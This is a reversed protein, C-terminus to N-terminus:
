RLRQAVEQLVLDGNHHGLTNNVESFRDLNMMLLAVAPSDQRMATYLREQMLTRNPLGTLPDRYTLQRLAEQAEKRETIDVVLGRLYSRQGSADPLFRAEDRWWVQRGERTLARYECLFADGSSVCRRYEALVRERDDPHILKLWADAEALWEAQTYGSMTMIQGSVYVRSGVADAWALYTLAPIEDILARYRQEAQQRQRDTEAATRRRAAEALEQEAASALRRLDTKFLCDHAGMKVAAVVAEDALSPTIAVVAPDIDRDRLLRLVERLTAHPHASYVLVLDWGRAELAAVLGGETQVNLLSPEYGGRRLEHDVRQVDESSARVVLVAVATRSASM